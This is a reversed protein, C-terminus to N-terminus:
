HYIEKNDKKGWDGSTFKEGWSHNKGWKDNKAELAKELEEIREKLQKNEKSLSINKQKESFMEMIEKEQADLEQKLVEVLEANENHGAVSMIEGVTLPTEFELGTKKSLENALDQMFLDNEINKNIIDSLEDITLSNDISIGTRKTLEKLQSVSLSVINGSGSKKKFVTAKIGHKDLHDQLGPHLARLDAKRTLADACLRYEYGAHKKDPVAPVYMIHLHNKSIMEGTPTRHREDRHIQAVFVCEEGMPLTSCIYRYSERFFAEEQEPPCDSPCQIVVEVAHVIDKRNYQFIKKELAKRYSNASKADECRGTILSENKCTLSPDVAKNGYSKGKPLQRLDHKIQYAMENKYKKIEM